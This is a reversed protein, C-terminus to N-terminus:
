TRHFNMHRKICPGWKNRAAYAEKNVTSSLDMNPQGNAPQLMSTTGSVKFNYKRRKTLLQAICVPRRSSDHHDYLVHSNRSLSIVLSCKLWWLAAVFTKIM